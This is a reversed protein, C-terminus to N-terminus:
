VDRPHRIVGSLHKSFMKIIVHPKRISFVEKGQYELCLADFGQGGQELKDQCDISDEVEQRKM